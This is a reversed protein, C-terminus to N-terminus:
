DSSAKNRFHTVLLLIGSAIFMLGIIIEFRFMVNIYYSMTDDISGMTDKTLIPIIIAIALGVSSIIIGGILQWRWSVLLAILLIITPSFVLLFDGLLRPGDGFYYLFASILTVIIIGVLCIISPAILQGITTKKM